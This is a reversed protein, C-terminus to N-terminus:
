GPSRNFNGYGGEMIFDIRGNEPFSPDNDLRIIELKGTMIMGLKIEDQSPKGYRQFRLSEILQVGPVSMALNILHSLYLPQHFTFNDPHFYGRRGGPLDANCFVEMLGRKVDDALYDPRVIVALTLDLAVFVPGMIELDHGAMRFPELFGRLEKEFGADIPRGGKRDVAIFVTHWSGTWQMTTQANMIEPHLLAMRTYDEETVARLQSRFLTPAHLSIQPTPEADRGGCAPLPNRVKLISNHEFSAGELPVIHTLAEVGVNGNAGCGVRYTASFVAGASPRRGQVDDGFRLHVTRDDDMEAVFDPSFRDSNLLDMRVNWLDEDGNLQVAPRAQYSKQSIASTASIKIAKEHDYPTCFTLDKQKLKPYYAGNASAVPPILMENEITFGHDALAVNGRACSMDTSIKGGIRSSICLQFPLTDESHWEVEVIDQGTLPDKKPEGPLRLHSNEPDAKAEPDVRILRVPHRKSPDADNELGTAVGKLEEFILIDGPKLLLPNKPDSCLTASRSGKPLCCVQESWTYFSILNHQPYLTLDHMLEFVEPQYLAKLEYYKTCEIVTRDHCRTLLRTRQMEKDDKKKLLVPAGLDVEFCVWVRANCGEDISYDILRVHRRLSCRRRATGLYAETAVADQYYSLYDGVYALLEILAIGIDSPNREKWDPITTALRDLMLRLFSSYNKAQYEIQPEESREASFLNRSISDLDKTCEVKFSFEMSSLHPDFGKPVTPESPLKALCLRYISFDGPTSVKLTAINGKSEVSLVSIDKIRVGGSILFNNNNLPEANAPIGGDQGPLNHIFHLILTNQDSSVELYDFGNLLTGEIGKQDWVIAKRRSTRCRYQM